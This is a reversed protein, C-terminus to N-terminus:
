FLSNKLNTNIFKQDVGGSFTMYNVPVKNWQSRYNGIFRLDGKFLGTLAPNIQMPTSYFQSFIPDQAKLATLGFGIIFCTILLRKYM